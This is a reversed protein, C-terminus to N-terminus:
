ERQWADLLTDALSKWTGPPTYDPDEQFTVADPLGLSTHQQLLDAPSVSVTTHVSM